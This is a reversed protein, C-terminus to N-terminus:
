QIKFTKLASRRDLPILKYWKKLPQNCRRQGYKFWSGFEYSAAAGDM